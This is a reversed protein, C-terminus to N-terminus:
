VLNTLVEENTFIKTVYSIKVFDFGEDPECFKGFKFKEAIVYFPYRRAFCHEALIKTPIGNIFGDGPCVCDAGTMAFDFRLNAYNFENLSLVRADVGFKKCHTATTDAYDFGQWKSDLVFLQIRKAKSLGEMFKLFTSSYSTTLVIIELRPFSEKINSLAVEITGKTSLDIQYLIDDILTNLNRLGFNEVKSRLLNLVNMLAHMTPKSSQLNEIVQFLKNKDNFGFLQNLAKIGALSKKAITISGNQYDERISKILEKEQEEYNM